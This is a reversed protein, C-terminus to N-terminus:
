GKEDHIKDNWCLTILAFETSVFLSGHKFGSLNYQKLVKKEKLFENGSKKLCLPCYDNCKLLAMYHNDKGSNEVKNNGLLHALERQPFM